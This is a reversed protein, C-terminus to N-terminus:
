MGFRDSNDDTKEVHVKAVCCFGAPRFARATGAKKDDTELMGEEFLRCLHAHVTSKSRKGVGECIEEVSPAYCHKMFYKQIYDLVEYRAPRKNMM